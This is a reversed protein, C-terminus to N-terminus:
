SATKSLECRFRFKLFRNKRFELYIQAFVNKKKNSHFRKKGKLKKM